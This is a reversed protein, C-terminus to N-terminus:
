AKWTPLTRLPDHAQDDVLLAGSIEHVGAAVIADALDSLKSYPANRFRPRTHEYAIHEATALLPDGGGVVVLNGSADTLVRTTFRHDPGLRDVATLATLVKLTSAPPLPTDAGVRALPGAPGDVAVCSDVPAVI